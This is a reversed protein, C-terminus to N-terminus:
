LPEFRLRRSPGTAAERNRKRVSEIQNKNQKYICRFWQLNRRLSINQQMKFLQELVAGDLSGKNFDLTSELAASFSFFQHVRM